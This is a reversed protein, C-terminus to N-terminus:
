LYLFLSQFSLGEDWQFCFLQFAQAQIIVIIIKIELQWDTGVPRKPQKGGDQDDRHEEDDEHHRLSAAFRQLFDLLKIGSFNRSVFFFKRGSELLGSGASMADWTQGVQLQRRWLNELFFKKRVFVNHKKSM